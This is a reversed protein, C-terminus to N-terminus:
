KLTIDKVDESRWESKCTNLGRVSVTLNDRKAALLVQLMAKGGQKGLDFAFRGSENCRPSDEISGDLSFAAARSDNAISLTTVSGTATGAYASSAAFAATFILTPVKM